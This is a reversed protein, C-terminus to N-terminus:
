LLLKGELIHWKTHSKLFFVVKQNRATFICISIFFLNCNHFHRMFVSRVQIPSKLRHSLSVGWWGWGVAGHIERVIDWIMDGLVDRYRKKEKPARRWHCSHHPKIVDLVKAMASCILEEYNKKEMRSIVRREIHVIVRLCSFPTPGPQHPLHHILAKWISVVKTM